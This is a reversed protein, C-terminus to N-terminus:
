DGSEPHPSDAVKRRAHLRLLETITTRDEKSLPLLGASDINEGMRRVVAEWERPRHQIPSPLDHCSACRHNFRHWVAGTTDAAFDGPEVPAVRIDGRASVGALPPLVLFREAKPEPEPEGGCGVLVLAVALVVLRGGDRLRSGTPRRSM